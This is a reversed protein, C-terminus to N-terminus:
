KNIKKKTKAANAAMIKAEEEAAVIQALRTRCDGAVSTCLVEDKIALQQQLKRFRPLYLAVAVDSGPLSVRASNNAGVWAFYSIGLRQQQAKASKGKVELTIANICSVFEDTDHHIFSYCRKEATQAAQTITAIASVVADQPPAGVAQASFQVTLFLVFACQQLVQTMKIM